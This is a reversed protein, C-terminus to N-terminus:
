YILKYPVYKNVFKNSYRRNFFSHKPMIYYRNPSSVDWITTKYKKGDIRVIDNNNLWNIKNIFKFYRNWRNGELYYYNRQKSNYPLRSQYLQHYKNSGILNIYGIRELPKYLLSKQLKHRCRPHFCGYRSCCLLYKHKDVYNMDNFNEKNKFLFLIFVVMIFFFLTKNNM